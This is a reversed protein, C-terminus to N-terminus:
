MKRMTQLLVCDIKLYNFISYPLTDQRRKPIQQEFTFGSLKM